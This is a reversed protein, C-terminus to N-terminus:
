AAGQQPALEPTPQAQPPAKEKVGVSTILLVKWRQEM